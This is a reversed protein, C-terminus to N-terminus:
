ARLDLSIFPSQTKTAGGKYPTLPLDWLPEGNNRLVFRFCTEDTVFQVHISWATQLGGKSITLYQGLDALYIDGKTGLTQCQEPYIIPRGLLTDTPRNAAGGAPLWVAVGATGVPMSMGMLEPLCDQNALWIANQRSRAWLRSYMKKINNWQITAADQGSEKAVSVLAPSNLIGLMQGAGTGNLVEDDLRFAFEEGFAEMIIAGLQTADQLSEDTAYCLGILKELNVEIQRFKPHTGDGKSEAEDKRYVRVGGWRSGTARSSEDIGNMKLGNMGPGIPIDRCRPYLLAVDHAKTILETAMQTGVLFGADSPIGESLGLARDEVDHLRPDVIGCRFEGLNGMGRPRGAAAIAQLYEGFRLEPPPGSDDTSDDAEDEAIPDIRFGAARQEKKELQIAKGLTEIQDLLGDIKVHEDETIDRKEREALEPIADHERWLAALDQGMEAINKM